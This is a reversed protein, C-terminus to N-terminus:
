SKAELGPAWQSVRNAEIPKALGNAQAQAADQMQGQVIALAYAFGKGKTVAHAAAFTFADASAGAAVLALLTPHGPNVGQLGGSRLARVAVAVAEVPPQPATPIPEVPGGALRNEVEFGTGNQGASDRSRGAPRELLEMTEHVGPVVQPVVQPVDGPVVQPVPPVPFPVVQGMGLLERLESLKMGGTVALGRERADAYLRAQENRQRRKRETEIARRNERAPTNRQFKDIELATTRQVLGGKTGSTFKRSMVHSVADREAKSDARAIRFCEAEDNPLESENIYCWLVLRLYAAEEQMTLGQCAAVWRETYFTFFIM